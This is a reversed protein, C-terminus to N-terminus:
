WLFFAEITKAFMLIAIPFGIVTVCLALAAGLWVFGFWWGIFLFYLVRILFGLSSRGTRVNNHIVNNIVIPQNQVQPATHMQARLRMEDDQIRKHMELRALDEDHKRRLEARLGAEENELRELMQKRALEIQPQEAEQSM